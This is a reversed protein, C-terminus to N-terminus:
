KSKVATKKLAPENGEEYSKRVTSLKLNGNAVTGNGKLVRVDYGKYTKNFRTAKWDSVTTDGKAKRDYNFKPFGNSKPDVANGDKDIVEIDFDEIDGIERTRTALTTM